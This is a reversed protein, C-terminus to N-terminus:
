LYIYINDCTQNHGYVPNPNTIPNISCKCITVVRLQLAIALECVIFNLAAQLLDESDATDEDTMAQHRIGVIDVAEM